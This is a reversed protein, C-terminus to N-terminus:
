KSFILRDRTKRIKVGGPLDMVKGTKKTRIFNNVDKWHRFTLKKINGGASKFAERVIEKRLARPQLLIDSLGIYHLSKRSKILSKRKKKEEEIFEYDERLNEALNFLSRKVRPNVKALYPLIKNRVRNRLFRDELNTRDIRFPIKENKLYKVVDKKETEILPRIFKVSGDFRVPHIGVIGKLSAGKIIRMMVTEAQDDLTHATAVTNAGLKAGAKKFFKYRKERLYEELSLKSKTRKPNLKKYAFKIGLSKALKRVFQADRRSEAGRIGHDMHAISLEIGLRDKLGNLIHILCASDPGGSVAVLIKDGRKFMGYHNITNLIKYTLDM